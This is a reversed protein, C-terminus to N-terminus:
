KYLEKLKQVEALINDKLNNFYRIDQTTLYDINETLENQVGIYMLELVDIKHYEIGNITIKPDTM